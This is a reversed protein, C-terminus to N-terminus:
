VRNEFQSLYEDLENADEPYEITVGTSVDISLVGMLSKADVVFNGKKILVNSEVRSAIQVLKTVDHIENIMVYKTKM